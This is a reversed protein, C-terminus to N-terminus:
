SYVRASFICVWIKEVDKLIADHLNNRQIYDTLFQMFEDPVNGSIVDSQITSTSGESDMMFLDSVNLELLDM